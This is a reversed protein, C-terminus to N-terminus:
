CSSTSIAITPSGTASTPETYKVYCNAGKISGAASNPILALETTSTVPNNASAATNPAILTYDGTAGTTVGAAQVLGADARPYGSVVTTAYTVTAGELVVTTLPTTSVLYKGKVMSSVSALSGKVAKVSSIRADSGLDVFKPIATAALIGLIVIVVILEILTFGNQAKNNM